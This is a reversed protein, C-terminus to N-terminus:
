AESSHIPGISQLPELYFSLAQGRAKGAESHHKIRLSSTYHASPYTDGVFDAIRKEHDKGGLIGVHLRYNKTFSVFNWPLDVTMNVLFVSHCTQAPSGFGTDKPRPAAVERIEDRVEHMRKKDALEVVIGNTTPRGSTLTGVALRSDQFGERIQNWFYGIQALNL